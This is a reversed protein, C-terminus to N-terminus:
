WYLLVYFYRRNTSVTREFNEKKGFFLESFLVKKERLRENKRKQLTIVVMQYLGIQKENNLKLNHVIFYVLCLRRSEIIM